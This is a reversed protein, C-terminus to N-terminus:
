RPGHLNLSAAAYVVNETQHRWIARDLALASVGLISAATEIIAQVEAYSQSEVGAHAVFGVLHRDVAVSSIGVLQKMYDRTKPGIGRLEVLALCNQDTSLWVGVDHVTNLSEAALFELLCELRRPKEADRWSLVNAAGETRVVALFAPITTAFPFRQVISRVRPAVVTSYRVGAQLISDSLLAGAHDYAPRLPADIINISLRVALEAVAMASQYTTPTPM